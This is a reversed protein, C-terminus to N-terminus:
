IIFSVQLIGFESLTPNRKYFSYNLSHNFFYVEVKEPDDDPVNIVKESEFDSQGKKVEQKNEETNELDDSTIKQGFSITSQKLKKKPPSRVVECDMIESDSM